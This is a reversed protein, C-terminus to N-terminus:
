HSTYKDVMYLSAVLVGITWFGLAVLVCVYGHIDHLQLNFVLSCLFAIAMFALSFIFVVISFLSVMTKTSKINM